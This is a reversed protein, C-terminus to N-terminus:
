LPLELTFTTGTDAQSVFWVSGGHAQILARALAPGLGLGAVRRGSPAYSPRFAEFFGAQDAERV